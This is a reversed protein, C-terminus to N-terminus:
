QLGYGSFPHSSDSSIVSVATSAPSVTYSQGPIICTTDGSSTTGTATGIENICLDITAGKPNSLFGGATRGGAAIANVATGGTTVTKIALTVITRQGEKTPVPNSVSAITSGDAGKVGVPNTITGVTTVATLTGSIPVVTGSAIGQITIVNASATGATGPASGAITSTDTGVAIRESGTGVAGAGRLQTVGGTQVINVDQTGAVATVTVPMSCTGSVTTGVQCRVIPNAGGGSEVVYPQVATQAFATGPIGLVLILAGARLFNGRM